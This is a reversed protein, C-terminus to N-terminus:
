TRSKLQLASALQLQWNNLQPSIQTTPSSSRLSFNARFASHHRGISGQDSKKKNQKSKSHLATPATPPRGTHAYWTRSQLCCVAIVPDGSGGSPLLWSKKASSFDLRHFRKPAAAMTRSNSFKAGGTETWRCLLLSIECKCTTCSTATASIIAGNDRGNTLPWGSPSM